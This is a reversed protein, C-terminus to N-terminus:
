KAGAFLQGIAAIIRSEPVIGEPMIVQFVIRFVLYITLLAVASTWASFFLSRKSLWKTLIFLFLFSTPLFGLPVLLLAYGVILVIGVIVDPPLINKAITETESKPSKLTKFAIILAAIVMTGAAGIPLAGASSLSSFGDIEIAKWLLFLSFLAVLIAFVGEGPRQVHGDRM